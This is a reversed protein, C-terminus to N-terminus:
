EYDYQPTRWGEEYLTRHIEDVEEKTFRPKEPESPTFFLMYRIEKMVEERSMEIPDTREELKDRAPIDYRDDTM